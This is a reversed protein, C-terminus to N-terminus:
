GLVCSPIRPIAKISAIIVTLPVAVKSFVKFIQGFYGGISKVTSAIGQFLKSGGSAQGGLSFVTGLEKLPMFFSKAKSIFDVVVDFSKTSQVFLVSALSAAKAFKSINTALSNVATFGPKLANSINTALTSVISTIGAFRSTVSKLVNTFEKAIATTLGVVYGSVAATLGTALAMFGFNGGFFVQESTEKDTAGASTALAGAAAARGAERQNELDTIQQQEFQKQQVRFFNNLDLKIEQLSNNITELNRDNQQNQLVNATHASTNFGHHENLTAILDDITKM